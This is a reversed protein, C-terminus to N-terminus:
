RLINIRCVEAERGAHVSSTAKNTVAHPAGVRGASAPPVPPSACPVVHLPWSTAHPVAQTFTAVSVAFQPMHPRAHMDHLAPCHPQGVPPTAHGLPHAVSAVSTTFQPMHPRLQPGPPDHVAPVQVHPPFAIRQGDPPQASTDLSGIFQPAHSRRHPVPAVHMDPTHTHPADITWHPPPPPPPQTSGAVSGFLQPPHPWFQPRPSVHTEPVHVHGAPAIMDFPWHMEVAVSGFLQPAM